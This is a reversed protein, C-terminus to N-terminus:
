EFYVPVVLKIVMNPRQIMVLEAHKSFLLLLNSILIIEFM